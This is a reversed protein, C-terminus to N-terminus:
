WAITLKRLEPEVKAALEHVEGTNALLGNIACTLARLLDSRALSTVLSGLLPTTVETPLQDFGRAYSTTLGLRRCALTLAYDRLSSIWYEAQWYRGREICFRARLAHHVAYGFIEQAPAPQVHQRPVAEGFLLRFKPTTAGFKTGPTFSLDFQLCGPLLFVRYISPGSTVDFLHAADFETVVIRTWDALVEQLPAADAVGFTLDLDSWRDGEGLALSGVIAGAVIRGDAAAVELIRDYVSNRAAVTFLTNTTM